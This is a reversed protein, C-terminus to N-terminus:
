GDKREQIVSDYIIYNEDKDMDSRALFCVRHRPTTRTATAVGADKWASSVISLQMLMKTPLFGSVLKYLPKVIM